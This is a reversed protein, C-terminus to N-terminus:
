SRVAERIAEDIGQRRIGPAPGLCIARVALGHILDDISITIASSESESEPEPQIESSPMPQWTEESNSVMSSDANDETFWTFFEPGLVRSGSPVQQAQSHELGFIAWEPNRDTFVDASTSLPHNGRGPELVAQMGFPMANITTVPTENSGMESGTTSPSESNLNSPGSGDSSGSVGLSIFANKSDKNLFIGREFLYEEVDIAELWEGALEPADSLILTRSQGFKLRQLQPPPLRVVAQSFDGEVVRFLHPSLPQTGDPYKSDNLFTSPFQSTYSLTQALIVNTPLTNMPTLLAPLLCGTGQNGAALLKTTMEVSERVFREAIVQKGRPRPESLNPPDQTRTLDMSSSASTDGQADHGIKSLGLNYSLSAIEMATKSLQLAVQPSMQASGSQVFSEQFNNFSDLTGRLALELSASKEEATSLAEERKSRYRRQALRRRTKRDQM